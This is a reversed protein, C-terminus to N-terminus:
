SAHDEADALWLMLDLDEVVEADQTASYYAEEVVGPAQPTEAPRDPNLLPLAVILALVAFGAAGVPLWPRYPHHDAAAEVAQQRAQNLRSLTAADLSDISEDLSRRALAEIDQETMAPDTM